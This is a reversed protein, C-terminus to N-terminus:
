ASPNKVTEIKMVNGNYYNYNVLFGLITFCKARINSFSPIFDRMM